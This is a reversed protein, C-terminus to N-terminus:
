ILKNDNIIKYILSEMLSPIKFENMNSKNITNLVMNFTSNYELLKILTTTPQIQINSVIFWNDIYKNYYKNLVEKIILYVIYTPIESNQIAGLFSLNMNKIMTECKTKKDM